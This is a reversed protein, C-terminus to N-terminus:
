DDDEDGGPSCSELAATIEEREGQLRESRRLHRRAQPCSGLAELTRGLNYEAYAEYPFGVSYTKRLATVARELLPLAEEWRGDQMLAFAEDNLEAAEEPGIAAQPGPAVPADTVTQVVTTPGDAVTVQRTVTERDAEPAPSPDAGRTALLAAALGVAALLVAGALLLAVLPSRRRRPARPRLPPATGRLAERLAEVLAASSPYRHAPEKALARAFVPDVQPPLGPARESAPPVPDHIQAAAEATESGRAFPRGGTLLEYAVVALAYRDSAATTERGLAQEPALYGATGLITGPATMGLTDDTM